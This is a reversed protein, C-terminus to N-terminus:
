IHPCAPTRRLPAGVEAWEQDRRSTKRLVDDSFNMKADRAFGAVSVGGGDRLHVPAIAGDFPWDRLLLVARGHPNAALAVTRMWRCM